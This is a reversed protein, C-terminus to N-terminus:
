RGILTQWIIKLDGRLSLERAYRVNIRVKDPWIFERNFAEPDEVRRLIEEEDRYKLTAPGTIGPRLELMLRDGGRLQDAFGPVDPRPGVFSMDGKLVNWLQPLEDLKSRRLFKGFRTIRPDGSTTVTTRVGPLDRMTRLKLVSIIRGHMGVRRQAFFGSLGTSIRAGLWLLPLIWGVIVLGMSALVVDMARKRFVIDRDLCDTRKCRLDSGPDEAGIPAKSAPLEGRTPVVECPRVRVEAEAPGPSGGEEGGVPM